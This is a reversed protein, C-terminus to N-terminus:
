APARLRRRAGVLAVAGCALVALGPPMLLVLVGAVLAAAVAIPLGGPREELEELLLVLFFAPYIADLGLTAFLDGSPAVVVGIVTGLVWMPYQVATAGFLKGRDFRGAGEHALVWSADVIAMSELARRPRRGKLWPAMSLGMPIFRANVLAAAGVGTLWGSGGTLAGLLAFQASGSFVLGSAAIPAAVGWGAAAATAGFSISLLLASVALPLGLRMGERFGADRLM